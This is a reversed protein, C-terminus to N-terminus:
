QLTAFSAKGMVRKLMMRGSVSAHVPEAAAMAEKEIAGHAQHLPAARDKPKFDNPFAVGGASRLAKLKDRREAILKNEDQPLDDTPPTQTM